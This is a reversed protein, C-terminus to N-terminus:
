VKSSRWGNELKNYSLISSDFDQEVKTEDNRWWPNSDIMMKLEEPSLIEDSEIPIEYISKEIVRM